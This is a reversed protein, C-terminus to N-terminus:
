ASVFINKYIDEPQPAPEKRVQELLERMRATQSEYIADYEERTIVGQEILKDRWAFVPDVEKDLPIRNGGSSSSHGYLRSVKAELFYPKREKRVYKMAKSIAAYSAEVDNGDVLGTEMGYGAAIETLHEQGHVENYGTSIGFLNNKCIFLIPLQQNFLTAWNLGIHFDGEATGADGFTCISIGEGGHRKQALASGPAISCQIGIPSTIPMVNWKKIAYHQCFNRGGSYPDTARNHSQRIPDAPDIGMAIMAASDRYHLHFFDYDLGYGPRSLLGLPVNLGEEGIGGMWFFADASKAMKMMREEMCRATLMLQLIKLKKEKDM